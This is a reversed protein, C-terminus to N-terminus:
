FGFFAGNLYFFDTSASVRSVITVNRNRKAFANNPYHMVSKYDYPLDFTEVVENSLKNFNQYYGLIASLVTNEKSLLVFENLFM